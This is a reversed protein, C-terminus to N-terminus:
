ESPLEGKIIFRKVSTVPMDVLKDHKNKLIVQFRKEVVILKCELCWYVKLKKNSLASDYTMKPNKHKRILSDPCIQTPSPM